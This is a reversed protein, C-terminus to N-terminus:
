TRIPSKNLKLQIPLEPEQLSKPDFEAENESTHASKTVEFEGEKVFYVVDSKSM